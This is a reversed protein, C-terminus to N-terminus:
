ILDMICVINHLCYQCLKQKYILILMFEYIMPQPSLNRCYARQEDGEEWEPQFDIAQRQRRQLVESPSIAPKERLQGTRDHM